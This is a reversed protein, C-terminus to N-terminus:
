CYFECRIGCFITQSYIYFGDGNITRM